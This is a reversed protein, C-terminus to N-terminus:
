MESNMATSSSSQGDKQSFRKLKINCSRIIIISFDFLINCMIALYISNSRDKRVYSTIEKGHNQFTLHFFVDSKNSLFSPIVVKKMGSEQPSTKGIESGSQSRIIALSINSHLHELEVEWLGM